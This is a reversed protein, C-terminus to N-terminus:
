LTASSDFRVDPRTGPSILDEVTPSGCRPPRNRDADRGPLSCPVSTSKASCTATPGDAGKQGLMFDADWIMPLDRRPIDLLSTLQPTWEDEMLRRLRQFRPEANSTYLRPGAAARAAPSNVLSQGEPPRLKRLSRRGYLLARRRREGRRFASRDRQRQRFVGRMSRSIKSVRAGRPRGPDRRARAGDTTGRGETDRGEVRGIM